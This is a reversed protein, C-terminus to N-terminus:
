QELTQLSDSTEDELQKILDDTPPASVGLYSYAEDRVKGLFDEGFGLAIRIVAIMGGVIAIAQKMVELIENLISVNVRDLGPFEALRDKIELFIERIAVYIARFRKFFFWGVLFRSAWNIVTLKRWIREIDDLFGCAVCTVAVLRYPSYGQKLMKRVIREIDTDKFHRPYTRNPPWPRCGVQIKM